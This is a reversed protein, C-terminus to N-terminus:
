RIVTGGLKTWLNIQPNNENNVEAQGRTIAQGAGSARRDIM